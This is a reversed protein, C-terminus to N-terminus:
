EDCPKSRRGLDAYRDLAEQASGPGVAFRLDGIDLTCGGEDQVTVRRIPRRAARDFIGVPERGEGFIWRDGWQTFAVVIPLLDRGRDTLQYEFREVEPRVQVRALINCEVLKQLRDTLVTRAVGLREAFGSFTRVGFFADRIILLTWQDGILEATRAVSCNFDKLSTRTM